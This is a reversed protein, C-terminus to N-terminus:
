ECMSVGEMVKYAKGGIPFVHPKGTLPNKIIHSQMKYAQYIADETIVEEPIGQSLIKGGHLLFLHDSYQAALNLDHLVAVVTMNRKETLYLATDLIEVQHHIDLHSIPEDLLLVDTQQAIARAVIVRQREGGSLTQISKHRLRWTDTMEMAEKCIELDKESESEFRKLYPTRGMMVIDIVSFDFEIITDQPVSAMKKAMDKISLSTIDINRLFITNKSPELLKLINKILTTKGSGNPGIISYFKGKEIKLNIADLILNEEYKWKLGKSQLIIEKNKM